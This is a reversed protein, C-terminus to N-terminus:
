ATLGADASMPGGVITARAPGAFAADRIRRQCPEDFLLLRRSPVAAATGWPRRGGTPESDDRGRM